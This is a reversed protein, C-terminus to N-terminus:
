VLTATWVSDGRPHVFEGLLTLLLSRASASGLQRRRNPPVAQPVTQPVGASRQAPV